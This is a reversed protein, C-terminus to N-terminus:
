AGTAMGMWRGEWLPLEVAGVADLGLFIGDSGEGADVREGEGNGFGGGGFREDWGLLQDEAAVEGVM